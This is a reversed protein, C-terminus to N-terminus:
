RLEGFFRDWRPLYPRLKKAIMAGYDVEAPLFDVPRGNIVLEGRQMALVDGPLGVVRKVLRTGDLPSLAVVIDGRKPEWGGIAM